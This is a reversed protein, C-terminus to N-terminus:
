NEYDTMEVEVRNEGSSKVTVTVPSNMPTRLSEPIPNADRVAEKAANQLALQEELSMDRLTARDIEEVEIAPPASAILKYEGEPAGVENYDGQRTSIVALGTSDVEGSAAYSKGKEVPILTVRSGPIAEGDKVLVVSCPYCKPFGKPRHKCGVASSLLFTMVILLLILKKM